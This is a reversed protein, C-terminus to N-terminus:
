IVNGNLFKFYGAFLLAQAEGPPYNIKQSIALAEDAFTKREDITLFLNFSLDILKDARVIDNQPHDELEKQLQAVTKYQGTAQILGTLFLLLLPMKRM